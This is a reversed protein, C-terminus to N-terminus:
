MTTRVSGVVPPTVPNAPVTPSEVGTSLLSDGGVSAEVTTNLIPVTVEVDLLPQSEQPSSEAPADLGLNIPVVSLVHDVVPVVTDVVAGPSLLAPVERGELVEVGPSFHTAGLQGRAKNM